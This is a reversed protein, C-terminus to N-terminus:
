RGVLLVIEIRGDGSVARAQDDAKLPEINARGDYVLRLAEVGFDRLAEQVVRARDVSLEWDSPYRASRALSGDTHGIVQIKGPIRQLAAAIPRLLGSSAPLLSPNGAQFLKVDPVVIVSRDIEDRVFLNRANVQESLVGALRPNPALQPPSTTATPGNLAAMRAYLRDSKAGLSLELLLFLVALLAAIVFSSVWLPLWSTLAGPRAVTPKWPLPGKETRAGHKSAAPTLRALVQDIQLDSEGPSDGLSRKDFGLLLAVGILESLGVDSSSGRAVELLRQTPRRGSPPASASELSQWGADTGWPMSTVVHDILAALVETAKAVRSAEIGDARARAQFDALLGVIRNRLQALDSVFSTARLQTSLSLIANAEWLLRAGAATPAIPAARQSWATRGRFIQSRLPM